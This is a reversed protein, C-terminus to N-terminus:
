SRPPHGFILVHWHGRFTKSGYEGVAFFRCPGYIVRYRKMFKQFDSYELKGPEVAYTLTLFRAAKHDRAELLLRGVWAQKRRTRCMRCQGCRVLASHDGHKVTLPYACQM